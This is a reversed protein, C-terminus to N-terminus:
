FFKDIKKLISNAKIITQYIKEYIIEIDKEFAFYLKLLKEDLNYGNNNEKNVENESRYILNPLRVGSVEIAFPPNFYSKFKKIILM